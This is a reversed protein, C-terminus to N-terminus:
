GLDGTLYEGNRLAAATEMPKNWYGLMVNAGRVAVEGVEGTPRGLGVPDVIRVEVGPVANGCSRIRPEDLLREEHRLATALPSLETAGYLEVLEV